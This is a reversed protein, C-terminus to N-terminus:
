RWTVKVVDDLGTRGSQPLMVNLRRDQHGFPVAEGTRLLKAEAPRDVDTVQAAQVRSGIFHLYWAKAKVTVPVNSREPWLGGQTDFVAEGSHECWAKLERLRAYYLDPMEGTPRPGCNILLNGGWARTEALIALVEATPKYDESAYGWGGRNWIDCREWWGQPRAAPPRCEPTEYDGQGHMRPNVVIGPQLTRIEDISIVPPGGDFFLVDIRGYSTLLEVVQGRVYARYAEDFGAPEPPLRDIPEHRLGYHKRGPFRAQDDSGFRFSMYQRHYYWDPPSYYLGVKLGEARCAEVFPRVLDRGGLHQRVGFDGFDSPWMAYGDHHRTTLVAYRFGTERAARLWKSPDYKDPNFREALRFYQEPTIKNRNALRADWTTDAMMGWSIDIGGHVSAIGWHLFLGLGANGFWQADPHATHAPKGTSKAADAVGILKHQDAAASASPENAM